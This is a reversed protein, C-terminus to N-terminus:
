PKAAEYFHRFECKVLKWPGLHSKPNFLECTFVALHNKLRQTPVVVSKFIWRKWWGMYVRGFIGYWGLRMTKTCFDNRSFVGSQVSERELCNRISRRNPLDGFYDWGAFINIDSLFKSCKLGSRTGRNSGPGWGIAKLVEGAVSAGESREVVLRCCRLHELWFVVVYADPLIFTDKM